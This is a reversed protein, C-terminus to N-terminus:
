AVSDQSIKEFYRKLGQLEYQKMEIKELLQKHKAYYIPDSDDLDDRLKELDKEIKQILALTRERM